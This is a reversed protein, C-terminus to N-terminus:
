YNGFVDDLESNDVGFKKNEKEPDTNYTKVTKELIDDPVGAYTSNGSVEPVSPANDAIQNSGKEPTIDDEYSYVFRKLYLKWVFTGSFQNLNAKNDMDIVKKVEFLKPGRDGFRKNGYQSLEIIDGEKPAVELSNDKFYGLNQMTLYFMSISVIASGADDPQWGFRKIGVSENLDLLMTMQVPTEFHALPNEGYLMDAEEPLFKQVYYNTKVGNLAILDNWTNQMVISEGSNSTVDNYNFCQNPQGNSPYMKIKGGTQFYGM